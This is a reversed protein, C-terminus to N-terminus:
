ANFLFSKQTLVFDDHTNLLLEQPYAFLCGLTTKKHARGTWAGNKLRHARM